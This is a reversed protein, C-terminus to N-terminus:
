ATEHDPELKLEVCLPLHDSAVRATPTDPLEVNMVTFHQSVFVHDLRLLPKVSSFTPRPRHKNAVTQADHFREQLRQFVESRPGSNFDGCLIVPEDEGLGGLWREGLLEAVQARREAPGLGFHTNILNLKRGGIELTVWIAGRAERFPMRSEKTLHASRAVKFPMRAFIAIGYREKEEEFMAHFVHTMRLHDAIVEAQDHGGSRPRHADIEQVAVIDPDCHNIVRAVREPRIKGDIGICSHINYTM